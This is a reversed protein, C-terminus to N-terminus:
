KLEDPLQVIIPGSGEGTHESHIREKYQDPRKAKLLVILLVDSFKRVVGCKEGKYYVPELVGEVARRRAEYELTDIALEDCEKFAEDYRCNEDTECEKLWVYHNSRAIGAERAAESLIGTGSYRALFIRQHKDKIGMTGIGYYEFVAELQKEREEKKTQLIKDYLTALDETSLGDLVDQIDQERDGM